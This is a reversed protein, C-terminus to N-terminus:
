SGMLLRVGVRYRRALAMDSWGALDLDYEKQSAVMQIDRLAQLTKKKDPDQTSLLARATRQQQSAWYQRKADFGYAILYMERLQIQYQPDPWAEAIVPWRSVFQISHIQCIINKAWVASGEASEAKKADKVMSEVLEMLDQSFTAQPKATQNEFADLNM